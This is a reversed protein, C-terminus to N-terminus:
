AKGAVPSRTNESPQVCLVGELEHSDLHGRESLDRLEHTQTVEPRHQLAWGFSIMRGNGVVPEPFARRQRNQRREVWPEGYEVASVGAHWTRRDHFPTAAPKLSDPKDCTEKDPKKRRV